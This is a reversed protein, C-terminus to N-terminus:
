ARVDDEGTYKPKNKDTIIGHIAVRPFSDRRCNLISIAITNASSMAPQDSQLPQCCRCAADFAAEETLEALRALVTSPFSGISAFSRFSARAAVLESTIPSVTVTAIRTLM